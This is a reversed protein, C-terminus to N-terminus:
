RLYGLPNVRRGGGWVAGRWVEFHLHPGTAWGSTGIRGIMEGRGVREGNRAALSSMHNYTTYLGSGHAIWIQYGGGNSKWGSFIVTGSAAARVATGYHAAIDIAPHGSHYYQSIYGGAVPWAFVGGTYRSPPRVRTGGTNRGTSTRPKAAVVPRATPKPTAIAKGHADPVVLVQGLVLTEDSLQNFEVIEAAKVKYRTALAELTDGEGVTVVLGSAPPIVLKQGVHLEDKSKLKNAWWVTMMSVGFRRAIGTLTDGPRVTYTRLQDRSDEVTPDIVVPKLLTGDALFQGEVSEAVDSGTDTAVIGDEGPGGVSVSGAVGGDVLEGLDLDNDYEQDPASAEAGFPGSEGGVVLRPTDGAGTTGGVPGLVGAMGPAATISAVLVISLAVVPVLREPSDLRLRRPRRHAGFLAAAPTVRSGPTEFPSTTDRHLWALARRAAVTAQRL